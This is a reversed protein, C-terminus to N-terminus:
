QNKYISIGVRNIHEIVDKDKISSYILLDFKYPLNLEDLTHHLKLLDDFSFDKGKIALDLDSGPKFNGKARSGFIVVEDINTFSSFANKIKAFQDDKLGFLM